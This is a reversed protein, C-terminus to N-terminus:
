PPLRELHSSNSAKPPVAILIGIPTSADGWESRATRNTVRHPVAPLRTITALAMVGGGGGTTRSAAHRQSDLHARATASVCARTASASASSRAAPMAVSLRM